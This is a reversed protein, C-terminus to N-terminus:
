RGARHWMLLAAVALLAMPIAVASAGYDPLLVAVAVSTLAGSVLQSVGVAASASGAQEPWREITLQQMNPAIMGRAFLVVLLPPLLVAGSTMGAMSAVAMVLASGAAVGLAPGLIAAARVSRRTLLGNTWAGATLAAATTAFVVAFVGSSYQMTTIIVIPSGAIYAFICGYSLANALTLDVFRADRHLRRRSEASAPPLVRSAAHRSEAVGSFTVVLLLGGALALVGHVSRWGALGALISGVAPALMPVVGFVVTVYSRKALAANGEFLDQVMAFSLVSCAGAGVGQLFRSIVLAPGSSSFTCAVSAITFCALGALLVPRRGNLDSLRGGSLQGSAFGGMFLSLTLSAITSSTGLAKPLLPLTPASIDLSLAPLAAFVGLLVTFALSEPAIRLPKQALERKTVSM